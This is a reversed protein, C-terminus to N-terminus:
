RRAASSFLKLASRFALRVPLLPDPPPLNIAGWGKRTLALGVSACCPGSGGNKDMVYGLHIANQVIASERLSIFEPDGEDFWLEGKVEALDRLFREFAPFLYIKPISESM